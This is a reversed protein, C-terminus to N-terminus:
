GSAPVALEGADRSVRRNKDRVARAPFDKAPIQQVADDPTTEGAEEAERSAVYIFVGRAASESAGTMEAYIRVLSPERATLNNVDDSM